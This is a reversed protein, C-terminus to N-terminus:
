GGARELRLPSDRAHRKGKLGLSCSFATVWALAMLFGFGNVATIPKTWAKKAMGLASLAFMLALLAWFFPSYIDRDGVARVAGKGILNLALAGLACFVLTLSFWIRSMRTWYLSILVAVAPMAPILYRASRQSPLMFVIALALLWLWM